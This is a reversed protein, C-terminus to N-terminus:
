LLKLEIIEPIDGKRVVQFAIATLSGAAVQTIGLDRTFFCRKGTENKGYKDILELLIKESAKKVVKHHGADHWERWVANKQMSDNADIAVHAGQGVSKGVGMKLDSNIIIYMVLNPAEM